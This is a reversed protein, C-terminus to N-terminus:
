RRRYSRAWSQLGPDLGDLVLALHADREVADTGREYYGPAKGGLPTWTAGDKFDFARATSEGFGTIAGPLM